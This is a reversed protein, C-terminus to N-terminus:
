RSVSYAKDNRYGFLRMEEDCNSTFIAVQQQTWGVDSLSYVKSASGQESEQPRTTQLISSIKKITELDLDLLTQLKTASEDHNYILDQQDVEIYDRANLNARVARWASMNRAWDACHYAFTHKPFKKMRSAVNEIARRKAFIFVSDPWLCKIHPISLIMEPNCTKDFWPEDPNLRETENKIVRFLRRKLAERNVNSILIKRKSDSAFTDFNRDVVSEISHILQLFLGEKFGNYGVGSLVNGLLSTGSRPSGVIFVPYKPM